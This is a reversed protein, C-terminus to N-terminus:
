TALFGRVKALLERPSFPKTVYADCGAERGKYEDETLAYSTLAIIPIARWRPEAKIRRTAEYGDMIPLQIDMLMPAPPGRVVAALAEEGDIAEIVEFGANSLLDRLIQRNDERDEVVLICKSMVARVTARSEDAIRVLLNRGTGPDVRGVAAGWATRHHAQ